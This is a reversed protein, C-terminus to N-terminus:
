CTPDIKLRKTRTHKISRKANQKTFMSFILMIRAPPQSAERPFLSSVLKLAQPAAPAWLRLRRYRRGYPETMWLGWIGGMCNVVEGAGLCRDRQGGRFRIPRGPMLQGGFWSM